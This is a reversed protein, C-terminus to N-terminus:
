REFSQVVKLFAPVKIKVETGKKIESSIKIKGKLLTVTKKVIALGLGSGPREKSVRYFPKYIENLDEKPIGIGTDKVKIIFHKTKTEYNLSINIKGKDTYKVANGIINVLIQSLKTKDTEIETPIDKEIEVNLVVDQSISTEVISISDYLIQKIKFSTINLSTQRNLKNFASVDELLANIHKAATYIRKLYLRMESLHMDRQSLVTQLYGLISTLPTKLEHSIFSLYVSNLENAEKEMDRSYKLTLFTSAFSSFIKLLKKTLNSFSDLNFNDIYIHGFVNNGIKLPFILTIMDKNKDKHLDDLKIKMNEEKQVYHKLNKIEILNENLRKEIFSDEIPFEISSLLKEDFGISCIPKYTAGEIKWISGCEAESIGKIAAELLKNLFELESENGTLLSSLEAMAELEKIYNELLIEKDM